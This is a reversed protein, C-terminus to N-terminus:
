GRPRGLVIGGYAITAAVCPGRPLAVPAHETGPAEYLEQGSWVEVGDTDVLGGELVVTLEEAVHGHPPFAAGPALRSIAAVGEPWAPGLTVQRMELGPWPTPQFGVGAEVEALLRRADGLPVDFLRAIRDAFRGYRGEAAISSLVRARLGGGAGEPQLASALPALASADGDKVEDM